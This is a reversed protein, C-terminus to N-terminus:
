DDTRLEITYGDPDRIWLQRGSVGSLEFFPIGNEDLYRKTAEFDEVEIALHPNTPDLDAGSKEAAMLHLQGSRLGYWVGAFGFDPRPITGLGLVKEYFRRSADLDSVRFAAHHLAKTKIM